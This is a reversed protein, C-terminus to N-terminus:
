PVVSSAASFICSSTMGFAPTKQRGSSGAKNEFERDFLPNRAESPIVDDIIKEAAELTTGKRLESSTAYRTGNNASPALSV